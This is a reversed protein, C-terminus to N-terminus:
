FNEITEGVLSDWKCIMAPNKACRSYISAMTDFAEIRDAGSFELAEHGVMRLVAADSRGKEESAAKAFRGILSVMTANNDGKAEKLLKLYESGNLIGSKILELVNTDLKQPDISYTAEIDALLESRIKRIENASNEFTNGINAMEAKAESFDAFARASKAAYTPDVIGNRQPYQRLSAEARDYVQKARLYAEFARKAAEDARKAYINFKSM